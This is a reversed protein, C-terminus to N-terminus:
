GFDGTISTLGGERERKRRADCEKEYEVTSGGGVIAAIGGTSTELRFDDGELLFDGFSAEFSIELIPALEEGEEEEM